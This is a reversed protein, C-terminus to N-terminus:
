NGEEGSGTMDKTDKGGTEAEAGDFDEKSEEAEMGDLIDDLIKALVGEEVGTIEEREEEQLEEPTKPESKEIAEAIKEGTERAEDMVHWIQESNYAAKVAAIQDEYNHFLELKRSIEELTDCQLDKLREKQSEWFGIQSGAEQMRELKKQTSKLGNPGPQRLAAKRYFMHPGPNGKACNGIVSIDM